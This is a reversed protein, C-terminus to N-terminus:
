SRKAHQFKQVLERIFERYIKSDPDKRFMRISFKASDDMNNQQFLWKIEDDTLNDIKHELEDPGREVPQEQKWQASQKVVGTSYQRPRREAIESYKPFWKLESACADCAAVWDPKPWHKVKEYWTGIAQPPETNTLNAIKGIGELFENKDIM